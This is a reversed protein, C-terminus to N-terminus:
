RSETGGSGAVIGCLIVHQYNGCAPPGVTQDPQGRQGVIRDSPGRATAWLGTFKELGCYKPGELGCHYPFRKGVTHLSERAWLIM